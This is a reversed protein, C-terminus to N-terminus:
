GHRKAAFTSRWDHRGSRRATKWQRHARMGRTDIHGHRRGMGPMPIDPDLDPLATLPIAAAAGASFISAFAIAALSIGGRLSSVFGM